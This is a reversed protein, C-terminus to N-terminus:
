IKEEKKKFLLDFYFKVESFGKWIQTFSTQTDPNETLTRVFLQSDIFLQDEQIALLPAWKYFQFKLPLPHKNIQHFTEYM